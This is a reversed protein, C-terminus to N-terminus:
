DHKLMLAAVALVAGMPLLKAATVIAKNHVGTVVTRKGKQLAAYGLDAVRDAAMVGKSFILSKDMESRAGFGTKTPGPCLITVKVGSGRLEESIAESFSKVYAKTAAYVAGYPNPMFAAISAVNLIRGSKQEKMYPLVARTIHTLALMNLTLMEQLQLKDCYAFEGTMGFGANNVLVDIKMKSLMNCLKEIDENRGLDAATYEFEADPYRKSFQECLGKLAAENRATLFLSYGDAAFREALERGIGSTAGTIVATKEIAM